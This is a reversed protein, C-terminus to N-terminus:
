RRKKMKMKKLRRLTMRMRRMRQKKVATAMRKRVANRGSPYDWAASVPIVGQGGGGLKYESGLPRNSVSESFM